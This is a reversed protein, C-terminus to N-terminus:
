RMQCCKAKSTIHESYSFSKNIGKSIGEKLLAEYINILVEM